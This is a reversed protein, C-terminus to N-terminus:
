GSFLFIDILWNSLATHEQYPLVSWVLPLISLFRKLIFPLEQTFISQLNILEWIELIEDIINEGDPLSRIENQLKSIMMFLLQYILSGNIMDYCVAGNIKSEINM